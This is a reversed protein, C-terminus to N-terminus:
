GDRDKMMGPLEEWGCATDVNLQQQRPKLLRGVSACGHIPPWRLVILEDYIHFVVHIFCMSVLLICLSFTLPSSTLFASPQGSSIRFAVVWSVVATRGHGELRTFLELLDFLVLPHNSSFYPRDWLHCKRISQQM